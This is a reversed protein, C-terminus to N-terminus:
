VSPDTYTSVADQAFDLVAGNTRTWVGIGFEAEFYQAQLPFSEFESALRLGQLTSASRQRFNLPKRPDAADYAFSYDEPVWSKVWVEAPGLLGIARNDLRSIDLRTGPLKVNSALSPFVLRPDQYPHFDTTFSEILAQDLVNICLKVMGGHGHEVVTEVLGLFDDVDADTLHADKVLYHTHVDPDYVEGNPGNPIIMGDANVFRKVALDVNDVLFDRFTYNTKLFIAKRIQSVIAKKHAIEADLQRKALDAPTATELFKRTWGVGYQHARLPFGVTAGNPVKQTPARGYEDVELMEGTSSAGYVRLADTSVECLENIMMGMISNHADLDAQLVQAVTDVGFKKVSQATVALLTSIDYSGVNPM